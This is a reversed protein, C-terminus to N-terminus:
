RQSQNDDLWTVRLHGKQPVVRLQKQQVRRRVSGDTQAKSVRPHNRFKWNRSSKCLQLGCATVNPLVRCNGIDQIWERYVDNTHSTSQHDAIHSEVVV